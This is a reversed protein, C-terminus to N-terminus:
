HFSKNLYGRGNPRKLRKLAPTHKFQDKKTNPLTTYYLSARQPWVAQRPGFGLEVKKAVHDQPQGMTVRHRPKRM